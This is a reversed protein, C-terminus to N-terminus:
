LIQLPLYEAWARRTLPRVEAELEKNCDGGSEYLLEEKRKADPSCKRGRLSEEDFCALSPSTVSENAPLVNDDSSPDM